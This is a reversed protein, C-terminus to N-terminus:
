SNREGEKLLSVIAVFAAIALVSASMGLWGFMVFLAALLIMGIAVYNATQITAMVAIMSLLIILFWEVTTKSVYSFIGLDIGTNEYMMDKYTITDAGRLISLQAYVTSTNYYPTANFTFQIDQASLGTASTSYLPLIAGEQTVTFTVSTTSNDGDQYRGIIMQDSTSNDTKLGYRYPYEAPANPDFMAVDYLRINKTGSADASYSGLQLTPLNDSHIEIIYPGNEILYAGVKGEIDV